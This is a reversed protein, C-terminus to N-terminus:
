ARRFRLTSGPPAQAVIDVDGPEVVAIVPYGGTTPHNALMVIPAGAPTIQIAGEVLAQSPMQEVDDASRQFEGVKLRVGVRSVDASVTWTARTLADLGLTFWRAQPGEWIRVVADARRRPAHDTVFESHPDDGIDYVTGSEVPPPGIGSLTDHSRSGLVPEVEIGGRVAVYSWMGDPLRDVQLREGLQLIQRVGLQSSAVILSRQAELLLGARTEFAAADERNGVLRNVLHQSRRDVPGAMPVGLHAWGHRGLDQITTGFGQDVVRLAGAIV